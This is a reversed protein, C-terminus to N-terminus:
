QVVRAEAGRRKMNEYCNEFRKGNAREVRSTRDIRARAGADLPICATKLTEMRNRRCMVGRLRGRVAFVDPLLAWFVAAVRRVSWSESFVPKM